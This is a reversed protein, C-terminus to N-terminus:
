AFIWNVLLLLDETFAFGFMLLFLVFV